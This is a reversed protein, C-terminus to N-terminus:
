KHLVSLNRGSLVLLIALGFGVLVTLTWLYSPRQGYVVIKRLMGVRILLM